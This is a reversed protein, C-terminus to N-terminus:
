LFFLMLIEAVLDKIIASVQLGLAGDSRITLSHHEPRYAVLISVDGYRKAIIEEEGDASKVSFDKFVKQKLGAFSCGQPMDICQEMQM